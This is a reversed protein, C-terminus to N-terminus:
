TTCSHFKIEAIVISLVRSTLNSGTWPLIKVYKIFLLNFKLFFNNLM